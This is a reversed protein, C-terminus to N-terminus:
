ITMRRPWAVNLRGVADRDGTGLLNSLLNARIKEAIDALGSKLDTRQVLLLLGIRYPNEGIQGRVVAAVPGEVRQDSLGAPL